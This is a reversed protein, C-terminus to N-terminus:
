NPIYGLRKPYSRIRNVWGSRCSRSRIKMPVKFLRESWAFVTEIDHWPISLVNLALKSYVRSTKPLLPYSKGMREQLLPLPNEYTSQFPAREM